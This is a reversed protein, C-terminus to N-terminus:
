AERRVELREESSAPTSRCEMPGTAYGATRKPISPSASECAGLRRLAGHLIHRSSRQRLALAHHKGAHREAAPYLQLQRHQGRHGGTRIMDWNLGTYADENDGLDEGNFYNDPASTSKGILYTNSAGDTISAMPLQAHAVCVGTQAPFGAWYSASDGQAYSSPQECQTSDVINNDGGNGAYDTRVVNSAFGCNYEGNYCTYLQVQRRSPCHLIAIPTTVLTM